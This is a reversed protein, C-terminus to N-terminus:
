ISTRRGPPRGRRKKPRQAPTKKEPEAETDQVQPLILAIEERTRAARLEVHLAAMQAELEQVRLEAPTLQRAPRGAPRPELSAVAATMFEERLQQFRQQSIDLRECAEGMRCKGALTDLIGKAREKALDSGPVGDVVESGLPYRGRM